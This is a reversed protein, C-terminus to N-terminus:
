RQMSSPRSCDGGEPGMRLLDEGPASRPRAPPLHVLLFLPERCRHRLATRAPRRARRNFHDDHMIAIGLGQAAAELILQGSDFHDIAAPQLRTLGMAEKWADFSDPLDHHILFTQRALKEV